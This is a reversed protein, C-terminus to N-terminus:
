NGVACTCHLPRLKAAYGWYTLSQFLGSVASSSCSHLLATRIEFVLVQEGAPPALKKDLARLQRQRGHEHELPNGFDRLHAAFVALAQDARHELKLGVHPEERAVEFAIRDHGAAETKIRQPLQEAEEEAPEARGALAARETHTLDLKGPLHQRRHLVDDVADVDLAHHARLQHEANGVAPERRVARDNIAREIELDAQEAVGLRFSVAGSVVACSGSFHSRNESLIM